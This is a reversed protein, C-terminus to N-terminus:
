GATGSPLSFYFKAGANPASEAWVRGGHRSVIRHVTALGMGTGEFESSAHLRQFVAFLKGYHRMDFGAGNDTVCYVNEEDLPTGSVQIHPAPQQASFKVANGLLQTWVQKLMARDGHASPLDPLICKVNDGTKLANWAESAAERMDVTAGRLEQQGLRSLLLLSDLMTAMRGSQERIIALLRKGEDDLQGAKDQELIRAFGDIARLPTRLDHSVGYTLSELERKLSEIEAALRRAEEGDDSM